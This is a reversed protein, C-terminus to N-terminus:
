CKKGNSNSRISLQAECNPCMLPVDDYRSTLELAADSFGDRQQQLSRTRKRIMRETVLILGKKFQSNLRAYFIWNFSTSVFPFIHTYYLFDLATVKISNGFISFYVGYVQPLWYPIQCALYFFTAAMTYITIRRLPIRSQLMTRKQRRLRFVIKAYFYTLLTCPLLFAFIFLIIMIFVRSEKGLGDYCITRAIPHYEGNKDLYGSNMPITRTKACVVVPCILCCSLVASVTTILITQRMGHIRKNEPHCIAMYRDFALATLIFTSCMKNSLELAWHLKCGFDGFIWNNLITHSLSLPISCTVLLDVACLAVIYIFTNGLATVSSKLSRTIFFVYCLVGTNGLAGVMFLLSFPLVKQVFQSSNMPIPSYYVTDSQNDM